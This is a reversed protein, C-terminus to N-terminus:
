TIARVNYILRPNEQAKLLLKCNFALKVSTARVMAGFPRNYGRAAQKVIM